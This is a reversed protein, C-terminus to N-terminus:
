AERGSNKLCKEHKRNTSCSRVTKDEGQNLRGTVLGTGVCYLVVSFSLSSCGYTSRIWSGLTRAIVVCLGSRAAAIWSLPAESVPIFGFAFIPNGERRSEEM